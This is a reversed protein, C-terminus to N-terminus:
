TLTRTSPGNVTACMKESPIMASPAAISAVRRDATAARCAEVRGAYAAGGRRDVGARGLAARWLDGRRRGDTGAGGRVSRPRRRIRMFVELGHGRARARM